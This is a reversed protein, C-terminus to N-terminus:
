ESFQKKIDIVTSKFQGAGSKIDKGINIGSKVDSVINGIGSLDGERIKQINKHVREATDIGQLLKEGVELGKQAGKIGLLAARGIPTVSLFPSTVDIIKKSIPNNIIKNGISVGQKLMDKGKGLVVKAAGAVKRGINKVFSFFGM